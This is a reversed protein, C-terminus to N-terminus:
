PKARGALWAEARAAASRCDDGPVSAPKSLIADARQEHSAAARKAAARAKDAEAKRQDALIRLAETADSCATADARVQDRQAIATAAKDRADTTAVYMLVNLGISVCLLITTPNM